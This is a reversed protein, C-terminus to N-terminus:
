KRFLTADDALQLINLCHKERDIKIEFGRLSNATRIKIALIEVAIVFILVSLPCGQIIGREITCQETINDMCGNKICLFQIQICQKKVWGM